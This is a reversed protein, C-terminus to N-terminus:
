EQKNQQKECDGTSKCREPSATHQLGATVVTPQELWTAKLVGGACSNVVAAASLIGWSLSVQLATLLAKRCSSHLSGDLERFQHFTLTQYNRPSLTSSLPQLLHGGM